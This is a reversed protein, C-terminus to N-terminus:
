LDAGLLLRVQMREQHTLDFQGSSKGELAAVQPQFGLAAWWGEQQVGIVPGAFLVSSELDEAQEFENVNRLELGVSLEQTVLWAVGLDAELELEEQTKGRESFDWAYEGSGNFAVLADGFRKDLIVKSELAVETPAATWEFYLASGLADAFSDSLKYKWENSISGLEVEHQRAIGTGTDVDEAIASMNWYLSTQLNKVVGLELELRQDVRSYFHDRGFRFTTWPELEKHGPLLVNSEYTYTFHRESGTAPLSWLLPCCFALAFLRLKSMAVRRRVCPSGDTHPALAFLRLKSM